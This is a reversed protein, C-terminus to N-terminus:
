DLAPLSSGRTDMKEYLLGVSKDPLVTHCSYASTQYYLCEAASTLSGLSM